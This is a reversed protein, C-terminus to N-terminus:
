NKSNQRENQDQCWGYKPYECAAMNAKRLISDLDRLNVWDGLDFVDVVLFAENQSDFIERQGVSEADGAEAKTENEPLLRLLKKM